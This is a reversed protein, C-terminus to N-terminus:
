LRSTPWSSTTVSIRKLSILDHFDPASRAGHRSERHNTRTGPAPTRVRAFGADAGFRVLLKPSRDGEEDVLVAL